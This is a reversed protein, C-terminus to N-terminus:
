APIKKLKAWEKDVAAKADPIIMAKPLPIVKHVLNYHNLSSIGKGAIHDEHNEHLTGELRRRTPNTPKLRHMRIRRALM